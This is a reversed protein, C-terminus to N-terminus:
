ATPTGRTSNLCEASRWRPTPSAGLRVTRRSEPLDRSLATDLRVISPSDTMDQLRLSGLLNGAAHFAGLDLLGGLGAAVEDGAQYLLDYDLFAGTGSVPRPTASSSSSM